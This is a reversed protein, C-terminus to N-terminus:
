KQRRCCGDCGHLGEGWREEEPLSMLWDLNPHGIGHECIDEVIVRGGRERCVQRVAWKAPKFEGAPPVRSYTRLPEDCHVITGDSTM